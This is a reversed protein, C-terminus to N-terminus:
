LLKKNDGIQIRGEFELRKGPWNDSIEPCSEMMSDRGAPIILSVNSILCEDNPMEAKLERGTGGM